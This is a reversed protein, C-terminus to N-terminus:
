KAPSVLLGSPSRSVQLGLPELARRLAVAVTEKGDSGVRARLTQANAVGELTIATNTQITVQKLADVLPMEALTFAPLPKSVANEVMAPPTTPVFLYREHASGTATWRVKIALAANKQGDYPIRLTQVTGSTMGSYSFTKGADPLGVPDSAGLVTFKASGRPANELWFAFDCATLAEPTLTRGSTILLRPATEADNSDANQNVGPLVANDSPTIKTLSATAMPAQGGPTLANTALLFGTVAVLGGMGAALALRGPNPFLREWMSFSAGKDGGFYGRRTGTREIASLVNDRFFMPADSESAKAWEDLGDWTERLTAVEAQADPSAAVHADMAAKDPPTLRSEVYDSLHEQFRSTDM